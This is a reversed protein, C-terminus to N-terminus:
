ILTRRFSGYVDGGVTASRLAMASRRRVAPGLNATPKDFTRTSLIQQKTSDLANTRTCLPSTAFSLKKTTAEAFIDSAVVIMLFVFLALRSM